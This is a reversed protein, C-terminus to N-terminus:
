KEQVIQELARNLLQYGEATLHLADANVNERWKGEADQLVRNTDLLQVTDIEEAMRFLAKNVQSVYSFLRPSWLLRKQLSLQTPEIITMLVVKAGQSEAQRTFSRLNDIVETVYRDSDAMNHVAAGTLDNIGAQIVVLAPEYQLVDSAYRYRMQATTEGSIGANYLTEEGLLPLPSWQEIRSDGFMFIGGTAINSPLVAQQIPNLRVEKYHRYVNQLQFILFIICGIAILLLTSLLIPTVKAM